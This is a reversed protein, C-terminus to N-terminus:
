RAADAVARGKQVDQHGVEIVEARYLTKGANTTIEGGLDGWAFGDSELTRLTAHKKGVRVEYSTKRVPLPTGGLDLTSDEKKLLSLNEDAALVTKSMMAEYTEISAPTAASGKRRMVKVVENKAGRSEDVIVRLEEKSGDDDMSLDITLMAGDRAIVRETLTLPAKRYSGTFRYVIFDGPKRASTDAAREPAIEPADKDDKADADKDGKAIASDKGDNVVDKKTMADDNSLTEDKAPADKAAEKAAAPAAPKAALTAPACGATLIAILAALSFTSRTM